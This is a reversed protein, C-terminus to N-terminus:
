QWECDKKLLRTMHAMISGFAEIFKRYYGTLHVFRKVEVPNSPRPFETVATILREVPRVGEDSLEHGLYEM